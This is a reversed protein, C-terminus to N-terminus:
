MATVEARGCASGVECEDRSNRLIGATAATGKVSFMKGASFAPAFVLCQQPTFQHAGDAFDDGALRSIGGGDILLRSIV